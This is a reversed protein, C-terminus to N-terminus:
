PFWRALASDTALLDWSEALSAPVTYSITVLYMESEKQVSIKM